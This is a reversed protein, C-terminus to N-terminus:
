RRIRVRKSSAYEIQTHCSCEYLEGSFSIVFHEHFVRTAIYLQVVVRERARLFTRCIHCITFTSIQPIHFFDSFHQWVFSPFLSAM